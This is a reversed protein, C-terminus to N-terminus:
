TFLERRLEERPDVSIIELPMVPSGTMEIEVADFKHQEKSDEFTILYKGNSLSTASAFKGLGNTKFARVPNSDQDKVEILINPLPNGRPDKVIGTILNPAEPISPIGAAKEMGPPVKRVRQTPALPKAVIPDFKPQAAQAAKARLELLEKELAEKQRRAEELQRELDTTPPPPPQVPQTAQTPAQPAAPQPAPDQKEELQKKLEVVQGALALNEMKIEKAEENDKKINEPEDLETIVGHPASPIQPATIIPAPPAAPTPVQVANASVQAAQSPMPIPQSAQSISPASIPKLAPAQINAKVTQPPPPIIVAAPKPAVNSAPLKVGEKQYIFQTPSILAKIFNGIMQDMPRGDIPVFALMAGISFSIISLPWKILTPLGLMFFFLWAFIAGVALYVFQKVTMNGVLKFQFGTIDQPIPHNEMSCIGSFISLRNLDITTMINNVTFFPM